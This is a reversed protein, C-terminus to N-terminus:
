ECATPTWQVPICKPDLKPDPASAVDLRSEVRQMQRSDDSTGKPKCNYYYDNHVCWVMCGSPQMNNGDGSSDIGLADRGEHIVQQRERHDSIIVLPAARARPSEATRSCQNPVRRERLLAQSLKGEKERAFKARPAIQRVSPPVSIAVSFAM